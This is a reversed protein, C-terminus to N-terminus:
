QTSAKQTRTGYPPLFNVKKIISLYENIQGADKLVGELFFELSVDGSTIGAQPGANSRKPLATEVQDGLDSRPRKTAPGDKMPTQGQESGKADSGNKHSADLNSTQGVSLGRKSRKM